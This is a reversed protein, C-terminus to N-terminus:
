ILPIIVAVPNNYRENPAINAPANKDLAKSKSIPM